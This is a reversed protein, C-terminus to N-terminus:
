RGVGPAPTYAAATRQLEATLAEIGPGVGANALLAWAVGRQPWVAVRASFGPVDGRWCVPGADRARGPAAREAVALARSLRAAWGRASTWSAPGETGPTVSTVQGVQLAVAHGVARRGRPSAQALAVGGAGASGDLPPMSGADAVDPGGALEAAVGAGHADFSEGNRVWAGAPASAFGTDADLPASGAAPVASAGYCGCYAAGGLRVLVLAVGPLLYADRGSRVAADLARALVDAPLAGSRGLEGIDARGGAGAVGLSPPSPVQPQRGAGQQADGASRLRRVQWGPATPARGRTCGAALCLTAVVLLGGRQRTSLGHACRSMKM